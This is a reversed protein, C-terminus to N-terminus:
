VARIPYASLISLAERVVPTTPWEPRLTSCKESPTTIAETMAAASM